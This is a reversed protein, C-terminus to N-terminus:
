QVIYGEPPTLQTGIDSFSSWGPYLLDGDWM